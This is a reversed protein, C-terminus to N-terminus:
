GKRFRYVDLAVVAAAGIAACVRVTQATKWTRRFFRLRRLDKGLLEMKETKDM